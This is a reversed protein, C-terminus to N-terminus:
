YALLFIVHDGETDVIEYQIKANSLSIRRQLKKAILINTKSILKFVMSASDKM